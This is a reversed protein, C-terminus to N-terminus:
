GPRGEFLHWRARSLVMIITSKLAMPGQLAGYYHHEEIIPCHLTCYYHHEKTGDPGSCWLIAKCPQIKSVPLHAEFALGREM